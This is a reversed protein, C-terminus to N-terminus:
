TERSVRGADLHAVIRRLLDQGEPWELLANAVYQADEKIQLSKAVKERLEVWLARHEERYEDSVRM